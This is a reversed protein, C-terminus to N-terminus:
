RDGEGRLPPCPRNHRQSALDVLRAVVARHRDQGVRELIGPALVSLQEEVATAVACVNAPAPSQIDHQPWLLMVSCVVALPRVEGARFAGGRSRRRPDGVAGGPSVIVMCASGPRQPPEPTEYRAARAPSSRPTTRNATALIATLTHTHAKACSGSRKCALGA